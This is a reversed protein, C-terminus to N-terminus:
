LEVTSLIVNRYGREVVESDDFGGKKTPAATLAGSLRCEMDRESVEDFLLRKSSNSIVDYYEYGKKGPLQTTEEYIYALGYNDLVASIRSEIDICEYSYINETIMEFEADLDEIYQESGIEGERGEERYSKEVAEESVLIIKEDYSNYIKDLLETMEPPLYLAGEEKETQCERYCQIVINVFEESPFISDSVNIEGFFDEYVKNNKRDVIVQNEFDFLFSYSESYIDDVVKSILQRTVREQRLMELKEEKTM